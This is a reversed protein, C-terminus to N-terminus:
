NSQIGHKEMELYKDIRGLLIRLQKNGNDLVNKRYMEYKEDFVKQEPTLKAEDEEENNWLHGFVREAEALAFIFTTKLCKEIDQRLQDRKKDTYWRDAIQSLKKLNDM